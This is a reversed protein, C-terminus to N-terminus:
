VSGLEHVQRDNITVQQILIDVKPDKSTSVGQVEFRM